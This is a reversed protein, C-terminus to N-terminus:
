VPIDFLYRVLGEWEDAQILQKIQGADKKMKAAFAPLYRNLNNRDRERTMGREVGDKVGDIRMAEKTSFIGRMTKKSMVLFMSLPHVHEIKKGEFYLPVGVLPNYVNKQWVAGFVEKIKKREDPTCPPPLLQPDDVDAAGGDPPQLANIGVAPIFSWKKRKGVLAPIFVSASIGICAILSIRGVTEWSQSETSMAKYTYYSDEEIEM